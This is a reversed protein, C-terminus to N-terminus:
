LTNGREKRVCKKIGDFYKSHKDLNQGKLVAFTQIDDLSLSELVVKANTNPMFNLGSKLLTFMKQLILHDFGTEKVKKLNDEISESSPPLRDM